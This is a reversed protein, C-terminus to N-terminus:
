KKNDQVYFNKEDEHIYIEGLKFSHMLNQETHLNIVEKKKSNFILVVPINTSNKSIEFQVGYNLYLSM